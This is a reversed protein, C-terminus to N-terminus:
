RVPCSAWHADTKSKVAALVALLLALTMLMDANRPYAM